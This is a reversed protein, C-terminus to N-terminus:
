ASLLSKVPVEPFKYGRDRWFDVMEPAGARELDHFWPRSIGIRDKVVIKDELQKLTLGSRRRALFCLEGVTPYLPGLPAMLREIEGASLVVGIGNELSNYVGPSIGLHAAAEAQRMAGGVRGLTRGSTTRQRHRWLFLKESATITTLDYRNPDALRAEDRVERTIPM